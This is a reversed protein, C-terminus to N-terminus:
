PQGGERELENTMAVLLDVVFQGSNAESYVDTEKIVALWYNDDRKASPVRGYKAHIKYIDTYIDKYPKKM